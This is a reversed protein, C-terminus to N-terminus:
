ICFTILSKKLIEVINQMPISPIKILLSLLMYWSIYSQWFNSYLWGILYLFQKKKGPATMLQYVFKVRAQFLPHYINPHNTKRNLKNSPQIIPSTTWLPHFPSSLSYLVCSREPSIDHHHNFFAHSHAHHHLFCCQLANVWRTWM